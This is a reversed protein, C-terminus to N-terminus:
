PQNMVYIIRNITIPPYNTQGLQKALPNAFTISIKVSIVKTWLNANKVDNASLYSDEKGDNDTDVGYAIQLNQVNDVLNQTPGGNLSCVLHSVNNTDTVVSFTNSYTATTNPALTNSTGLCNIVDDGSVTNFRVTIGDGQPGTGHTGYISQGPATFPSTASFVTQANTLHLPDTNNFYGAEQVVDTILTLAIREDDQVQALQGQEISTQRVSLFVTLLGALLFLGIAIAIMLEVLSFANQRTYRLGMEFNRM